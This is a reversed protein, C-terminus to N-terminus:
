ENYLDPLDNEYLVVDGSQIYSKLLDNAEFLSNVVTINEKQDAISNIGELIPKAREEGVLIIRDLNAKGVAEGFKRNEEFEIEGLEVMGPTIVIRRGSSFQSLIEIANKAGVPNSNFADDIIFFNGSKKLELRHEVPEINKAGLAMTKARIGFHHATAIALLMNQVNHAGLLRTQISIKEEGISLLFNTGENNYSIDTGTIDGSNLGVLIREIETREEGMKRVLEDDANLIAVGGAALNDVLTGKEEAIVKQSGFTELHAVGVNTIISIDPQAIDCLEQINGAYRAGMELILIQHHSQLDNNIVKCIGMPTNYSGPTSCVSFREKLLDRVMFKTSTKGYSGTIAIVKLHPMSELKRRAQKKFGEQISREIPKTIWSGVFIFFPILIASFVWGFVLLIIDFNLLGPSYNYLYRGTYAEVTLFGPFLIGLVLVPILLRKVRNTLILPKKVKDQKYRKVSSLWFIAYVFFIVALTNKTVVSGFFGDAAVSILLILNFVGLDIPIVKEDWHARLWQWYENNKYGVQQFTHVFFRTRYWHYRFLIVCFFISFYNLLTLYWDM